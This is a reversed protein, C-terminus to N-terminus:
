VQKLAQSITLGGNVFAEMHNNGAPALGERQMDAYWDALARRQDDWIAVGKWVPKMNKVWLELERISISRKPSLLEATRVLQEALDSEIVESPISWHAAGLRDSYFGLQKLTDLLFPHEADKDVMSRFDDLKRAGGAILDPLIWNVNKRTHSRYDKWLARIEEDSATLFRRLIVVKGAEEISLAAVSAATPWRANSFLLRADAALRAANQTAANM